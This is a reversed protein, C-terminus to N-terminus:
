ALIWGQLLIAKPDKQMDLTETVQINCPYAGTLTTGQAVQSILACVSDADIHQDHEGESHPISCGCRCDDKM